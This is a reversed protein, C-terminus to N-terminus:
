KMHGSMRFGHRFGKYGNRLFSVDIGNTKAWADLDTKEKEMAAKRAEPTLSKWAEKDALKATQLEKQKALIAQKQVETIKSNKVAQSLRDDTRTQMQSQREDRIEDFVSKVDSERLGFKAVLKQIITQHPTTTDQAYAYSTLAGAVMLGMSVAVIAIKKNM